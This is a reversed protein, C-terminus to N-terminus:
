LTNRKHKRDAHKNNKCRITIVAFRAHYTVFRSRSIQPIIIPFQDPISSRITRRIFLIWLKIISSIQLVVPKRITYFHILRLIYHCYVCHAFVTIIALGYFCHNTGNAFRSVSRFTNKIQSVTLFPQCQFTTHITLICCRDRATKKEM